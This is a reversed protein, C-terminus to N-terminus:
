ERDDLFSDCGSSVRQNYPTEPPKETICVSNDDQPYSKGYTEEILMLCRAMDNSKRTSCREFALCYANFDPLTAVHRVGDVMSKFRAETLTLRDVLAASLGNAKGAEVDEVNASLIQPKMAELAQAIAELAENKQETSFSRMKASAARARVALDHIIEAINMGYIIGFGCVDSLVVGFIPM